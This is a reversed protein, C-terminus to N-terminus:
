SSHTSWSPWLLRVVESMAFLRTLSIEKASGVDRGLAWWIRFYAEERAKKLHKSTSWTLLAPWHADEAHKTLIYRWVWRVLTGHTAM